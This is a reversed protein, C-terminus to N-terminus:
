LVAIFEIEVLGNKPLKAVEFCSRAPFKGEFYSQYIDNVVGFNALDSLFITTKVINKYDGGAKQLIAGINKMSFHAQETIDKGLEGTVPDIGLQGSGYLMGKTEIAQVYPGIAQPANEAAIVNKM